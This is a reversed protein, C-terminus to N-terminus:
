AAFHGKRYRHDKLPTRQHISEPWVTQLRERGDKSNQKSLRTLNSKTECPHFKSCRKAGNVNMLRTVAAHGRVVVVVVVVWLLSLVESLVAICNNLSLVHNQESQRSM